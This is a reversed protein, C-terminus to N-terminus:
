LCNSFDSAAVVCKFLVDPSGGPGCCFGPPCFTLQPIGCELGEEPDEGGKIKRLEEKCLPKSGSISIIRKLM